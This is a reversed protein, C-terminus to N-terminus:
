WSRLFFTMLCQPPNCRLLRAFELNNISGILTQFISNSFRNEAHTSVLILLTPSSPPLMAVSAPKKWETFPGLCPTLFSLAYRRFLWLLHYAEVATKLVILFHGFCQWLKNLHSLIPWYLCFCMINVCGLEKGCCLCLNM